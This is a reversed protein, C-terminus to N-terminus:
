RRQLLAQLEDWFVDTPDGWDELMARRRTEWERKVEETGLLEDLKEFLIDSEPEFAFMLRYKQEVIRWFEFSSHTKVYSGLAIAPTGLLAAEVVVSLGDGIVLNCAALVHHLRSAAVPLRLSDLNAPLPAESSIFVRGVADLREIVESLLAPTMGQAGVDHYAQFAALRVLFLKTESDVGLEERVAPDPTFVNPHLYALHMLGPFTRHRSGYDENLCDPTVIRDALPYGLYKFQPNAAASDDNIVLSPIGLVKGVQAVSITKGVLAFPQCKRALRALKWDYVLLEGLKGILGKKEVTLVVPDLGDERMLDILVDKKRGTWVVNIGNNRCRRGLQRLMLYHKPHHSDFIACPTSM